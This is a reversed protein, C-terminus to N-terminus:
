KNRNKIIGKIVNINEKARQIDKPWKKKLLIKKHQTKLGAWSTGDKEKNYLKLYKAPNNILNKHEKLTKRHSRLAKNLQKLPKNKYLNYQGSHRGGRKAIEYASESLKEVKITKSSIKSVKITGTISVQEAEVLVRSLKQTKSVSKKPVIATKLLASKQHPKKVLLRAIESKGELNKTTKAVRAVESLQESNLARKVLLCGEETAKAEKGAIAGPILEEGLACLIVETGIYGIMRKQALTKKNNKEGWAKPDEIHLSQSCQQKIAEQSQKKYRAEEPNKWDNRCEDIYYKVNKIIGEAATHLKKITQDQHQQINDISQKKCNLLEKKAIKLLDSHSISPNEKVINYVDHTVKAIQVLPQNEIQLKTTKATFEAVSYFFKGLEVINEKAGIGIEIFNDTLTPPPPTNEVGLLNRIQQINSYAKNEISKLERRQNQKEEIEEKTYINYGQEYGCPILSERHIAAQSRTKHLNKLHYSLAIKDGEKLKSRNYQEIYKPTEKIIQTSKTEFETINYECERDIYTSKLSFDTEAQYLPLLGEKIAKKLSEARLHLDAKKIDNNEKNAKEFKQELQEVKEKLYAMYAEKSKKSLIELKNKYITHLYEKRTKDIHLKLEPDIKLFHFLAKEKTRFDQRYKKGEKDTTIFSFYKEGQYTQSEKIIGQSILHQSITTYDARRYARQLNQEQRSKEEEQRALEQKRQAEVRKKAQKELKKNRNKLAKYNATPLFDNEISNTAGKYSSTIYDSGIMSGTALSSLKGINASRLISQKRNNFEQQPSLKIKNCNNSNTNKNNYDDVFESVVQGVAAGTAGALFTKKYSTQSQHNKIEQYQEETFLGRKYASKLEIQEQSDSLTKQGVAVLGGLTFHGAKHLINNKSFYNKSQQVSFSESNEILESKNKQGFERIEGLKNAGYAGAANILGNACSVPFSRAIRSLKEKYPQSKKEHSDELLHAISEKVVELGSGVTADLINYEARQRFTQKTHNSNQNNNIESSIGNTILIQLVEKSTNLINDTSSLEKVTEKIDFENALLSDTTKKSISNLIPRYLINRIVGIGSLRMELKSAVINGLESGIMKIVIPAIINFSSAETQNKVSKNNEKKRNIEMAERNHSQQIKSFRQQQSNFPNKDSKKSQTEERTHYALEDTKKPTQSKAIISSQTTQLTPQINVLLFLLKSGLNKM